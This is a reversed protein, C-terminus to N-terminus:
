VLLDGRGLLVLWEAFEPDPPLSGSEARRIVEDDSLGARQRLVVLRQEKETASLARAGALRWISGGIWSALHPAANELQEVADEELVLVTAGDRQIRARNIDVSAWETPTFAPSITVILVGRAHDCAARALERSSAVTVRSAPPGTPSTLASIEEQLGAAIEEAHCEVMLVFWPNPSVSAVVRAAVEGLEASAEEEEQDADQDADLVLVHDDTCGADIVASQLGGVHIDEDDDGNPVGVRVVVQRDLAEHNPCGVVFEQLQRLLERYTV